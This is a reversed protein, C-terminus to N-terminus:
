NFLENLYYEENNTFIEGDPLITGMISKPCVLGFKLINGETHFIRLLACHGLEHYVLTRKLEESAGKWDWLSIYITDTLIECYGADSDDWGVALHNVVKIKFHVLKSCDRRYKECDKFFMDEYKYPDEYTIGEPVESYTKCGILVLLIFILRM